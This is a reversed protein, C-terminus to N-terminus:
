ERQRRAHEEDRKRKVEEVTGEFYFGHQVLIKRLVEADIGSNAAASDLHHWGGKAPAPANTPEPVAATQILHRRTPTPLPTVDDDEERRAVTPPFLTLVPASDLVLSRRRSPTLERRERGGLGSFSSFYRMNAHQTTAPPDFCRIRSEGGLLNGVVSTAGGVVAGAASTAQQVVEGAASTARSAAAGGASTAESM